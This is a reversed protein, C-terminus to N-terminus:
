NASSLIISNRFTVGHRPINGECLGRVTITDGVDIIGVKERYEEQLFFRIGRGNGKLRLVPDGLLNIEVTQITGSVDCVRNKYARDAKGSANKYTRFLAQATTKLPTTEPLVKREQVRISNPDYQVTYTVIIVAMIIAIVTLTGTLNRM